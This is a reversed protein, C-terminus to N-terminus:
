LTLNAVDGRDEGDVRRVGHVQVVRQRECLNARCTPPPRVRPIAAAGSCRADYGQLERGIADLHDRAQLIGAITPYVELAQWFSRHHLQSTIYDVLM